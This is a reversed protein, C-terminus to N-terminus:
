NRVRNPEGRTTYAGCRTCRFLSGTHGASPAIYELDHEPCHPPIIRGTDPCRTALSAVPPLTTGM